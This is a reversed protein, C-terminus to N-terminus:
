REKVFVERFDEYRKKAAAKTKYVNVGVVSSGWSEYSDIIDEYDPNGGVFGVWGIRKM